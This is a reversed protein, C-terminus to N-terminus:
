HKSICAKFLVECYNVVNNVKFLLEVTNILRININM